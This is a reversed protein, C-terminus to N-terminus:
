KSQWLVKEIIWRDSIKSLLLYDIGWWARLKVVAIKDLMDLIQVDRIKAMSENARNRENKTFGIMQSFSMPVKRWATDDRRKAYGHKSADPAVSYYIRTSDGLYFGEIYDNAARLVQATDTATQAKGALCSLLLLAALTTKM